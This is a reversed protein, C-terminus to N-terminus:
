PHPTIAIVTIEDKNPGYCWFVRYAGPRNNQAYAEFVKAKKDYPNPISTFEHTNLGPHKPNNRLLDLTKHVQRFLGEEPSSKIKGRGERLSTVAQAKEKIFNYQETATDMYILKMLIGKM